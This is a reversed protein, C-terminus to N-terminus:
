LKRVRLRFKAGTTALGARAAGNTPAGAMAAAGTAQILYVQGGLIHVDVGM